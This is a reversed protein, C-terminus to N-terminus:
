GGCWWAPINQAEGPGLLSASPARGVAEADGPELSTHSSLVFPGQDKGAAYALSLSPRVSMSELQQIGILDGWSAAAWRACRSLPSWWEGAGRTPPLTWPPCPYVLGRTLSRAKNM